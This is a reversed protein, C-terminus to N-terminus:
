STKEKFERFISAKERQYSEDGVARLIDVKLNYMVQEMDEKLANGTGVPLQLVKPKYPDEFNNVYCWDFLTVEKNAVEEVISNTFTMKGTGPIGAVYLNYGPKNVQLGFQMVETGRKQGIINTLAPVEETTEFEFIMEDITKRLVDTSLLIDSSCVDSNKMKMVKKDKNPHII